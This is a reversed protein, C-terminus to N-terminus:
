KAVLIKYDSFSSVCIDWWFSRQHKEAWKWNRKAKMKNLYLLIILTLNLLTTRTLNSVQDSQVNPGWDTAEDTHKSAKDPQYHFVIWHTKFCKLCSHKLMNKSLVAVTVDIFYSLWNWLPAMEIRLWTLSGTHARTIIAGHCWQKM